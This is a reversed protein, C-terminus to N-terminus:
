ACRVSKRYQSPSYGVIKRFTRDFHSLDNFGVAYAVESVRVYRDAALLEKAQTVRVAHLYEHFRVGTEHHFLRCFHFRSLGAEQAVDALTIGRAFHKGMFTLARQINPHVARATGKGGSPHRDNEPERNSRAIVAGVAQLLADLQVPKRLYDSAGGRLAQVALEESGFATLIIVPLWPWSRKTIQLLELGSRTPLLYDALVLHLRERAQEQLIEIAQESDKAEVVRALTALADRLFGRVLPDDDVVLVGPVHRGGTVM